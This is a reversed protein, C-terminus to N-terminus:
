NSPPADGNHNTNKRGLRRRITRLNIGLLEATRVRNNGTLKLVETIAMEQIQRM